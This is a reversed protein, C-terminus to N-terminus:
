KNNGDIKYLVSIISSFSTHKHLTSNHYLSSKVKEQKPKLKSRKRNQEKEKWYQRFIREQFWKSRGTTRRARWVKKSDIRNEMRICTWVMQSTFQLENKSISLIQTVHALIAQDTIHSPTLQIIPTQNGAHCPWKKKDSQRSWGQAGSVRTDFPNKWQLYPPQIMFSVVWKWTTSLNLIQIDSWHRWPM